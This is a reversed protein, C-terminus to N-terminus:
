FPIDANIHVQISIRPSPIYLFQVRGIGPERGYHYIERSHYIQISIYRSQYLFQVTYSYLSGDANSNSYASAPNEVTIAYRGPITYRSQYMSIYRSKYIQTCYVTYMCAVTQMSIPIHWHRTRWQLPIDIQFPLDRNIYTGPNIYKSWSHYLICAVTQM